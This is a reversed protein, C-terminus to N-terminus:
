DTERDRSTRSRRWRDALLAAGLVFGGPALLIVTALGLRNWHEKRM